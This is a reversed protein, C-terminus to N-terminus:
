KLTSFLIFRANSSAQELMWIDDAHTIFKLDLPTIGVHPCIALQGDGKDGETTKFSTM